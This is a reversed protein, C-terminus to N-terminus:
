RTLIDGLNDGVSFLRAKKERIRRVIKHLAELNEESLAQLGRGDNAESSFMFSYFSKFTIMIGILQPLHAYFKHITPTFRVWSGLEQLQLKM